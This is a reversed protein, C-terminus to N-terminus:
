KVHEVGKLVDIVIGQKEIYKINAAELAAAMKSGFSGAIV